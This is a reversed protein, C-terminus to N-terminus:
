FFQNYEGIMMSRCANILPAWDPNPIVRGSEDMTVCLNIRTVGSPSAKTPGVVHNVEAHSPDFVFQPSDLTVRSRPAGKTTESQPTVTVTAKLTMVGGVGDAVQIEGHKKKLEFVVASRISSMVEIIKAAPLDPSKKHVKLLEFYFKFIAATIDYYLYYLVNLEKGYRSNGRQDQAIIWQDINSMILYFLQYIDTIQYGQEALKAQVVRDIYRDMSSIHVDIDDILAGEHRGQGFLLIGLMVRWTYISDVEMYHQRYTFHSLVYFLGAAMYKAMANGEYQARPIAIRLECPKVFKRKTGYGAGTIAPAWCIVWDSSPYNTENIKDVTGYHVDVQAFLRFAQTCGYKAFVYHAITTKAPIADAARLATDGNWIRSHAVNVSEGGNPLNTHYYYAERMVSPKIQILRIFVKHSEVSIIPDAVVPTALYDSDSITIHNGRRFYPLRMYIPPLNEGRYRLQYAVMYFDSQALDLQSPATSRKRSLQAVEELPPCRTCGVYELGQPFVQAVIRWISEIWEEGKKSQHYVLGEAIEPNFAPIRDEIFRKLEPHIM